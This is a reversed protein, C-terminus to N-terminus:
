RLASFAAVLFALASVYVSVGCSELLSFLIASPALGFTIVDALSDLEKGIPSSVHLLRAAFGDFFDFVAGSVIAAYAILYEGRFAFYAAVCGCILNCCTIANPIHKKM